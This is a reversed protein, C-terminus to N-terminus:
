VYLFKWGRSYNHRDSQILIEELEIKEWSSFSWYGVQAHMYVYLLSIYYIFPDRLSGTTVVPRKKKPAHLYNCWWECRPRSNEVLRQLSFLCSDVRNWHLFTALERGNLYTSYFGVTWCRSIFEFSGAYWGCLEDVRLKYPNRKRRCICISELM